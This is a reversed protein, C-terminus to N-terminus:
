HYCLDLFYHCETEKVAFTVQILPPDLIEGFPAGVGLRPTLRNNEELFRMFNQDPPVDRAGGQDALTFAMPEVNTAKLLGTHLDAHAVCLM